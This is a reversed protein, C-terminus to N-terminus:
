FVVSPTFVSLMVSSLIFVRQMIGNLMDANLTIVNLMIVGLMDIFVHCEAFLCEDNIYGVVVASLM